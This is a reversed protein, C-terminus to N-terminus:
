KRKVFIRLFDGHDPVVKKRIQDPFTFLFSICLMDMHRVDAYTHCVCISVMQMHEIYVYASCRGISFMHVCGTCHVENRIHMVYGYKGPLFIMLVTDIKLFPLLRAM